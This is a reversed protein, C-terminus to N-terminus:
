YQLVSFGYLGIGVHYTEIQIFTSDTFHMTLQNVRSYDVRSVTKGECEELSYLRLEKNKMKLRRKESSFKM